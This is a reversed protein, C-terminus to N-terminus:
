SGGYTIGTWEEDLSEESLMSSFIEIQCNISIGLFESGSPSSIALKILYLTRAM